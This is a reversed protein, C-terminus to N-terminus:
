IVAFIEERAVNERKFYIKVSKKKRNKTSEGGKKKLEGGDHICEYKCECGFQYRPQRVFVVEWFCVIQM